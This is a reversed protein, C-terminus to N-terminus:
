VAWKKQKTFNVNMWKSQKVNSLRDYLQERFQDIDDVCTIKSRDDLLFHFDIYLTRGVKSSRIHTEKIDYMAELETVVKKVQQDTKADSSMHLLERGNRRILSIPVTMFYLGALLVMIPDIYPVFWSLSTNQLFIASIFGVVVALSLLTDMLWQASEAKIFESHHRNRRMVQQIVFCVVLSFIGYLLASGLAVDRGGSALAMISSSVAAVCLVSIVMAQIIVVMPEISAKGFPFRKTDEKRVYQSAILAILSMFLSIISYIGDFLIMQSASVIGWIIGVVAFVFATSASLLLIKSTTDRNM